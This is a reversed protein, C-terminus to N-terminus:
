DQTFKKIKGEDYVQYTTIRTNLPIHNLADVAELNLINDDFFLIDRPSLACIHDLVVKAKAVSSHVNSDGVAYIKRIPFSIGQVKLFDQILKKNNCDITKGLAPSYAIKSASRATLIITESSDEAQAERFYNIMREIPSIELSKTSGVRSYDIIYDNINYHKHYSEYLAFNASSMWYFPNTKPKTIRHYLINQEELWHGFGPDMSGCGLLGQVGIEASTSALTDDFDFIFLTEITSKTSHREPKHMKMYIKNM